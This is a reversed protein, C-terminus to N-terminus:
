NSVLRTLTEAIGLGLFVVIVLAFLIGVMIVVRAQISYDHRWGDRFPLFFERSGIGADFSPSASDSLTLVPSPDGDPFDSPVFMPAPPVEVPDYAVHDYIRKLRAYEKAAARRDQVDLVQKATDIRQDVTWKSIGLLRGIEKSTLGDILPDLCVRQKDTLRRWRALDREEQEQETM